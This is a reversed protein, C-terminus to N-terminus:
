LGGKCNSGVQKSLAELQQGKDAGGTICVSRLGSYKRLDRCTAAVQM